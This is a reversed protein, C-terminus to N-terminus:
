CARSLAETLGHAPATAGAAVSLVERESAREYKHQDTERKSAQQLLEPQQQQQQRTKLFMSFSQRNVRAFRISRARM